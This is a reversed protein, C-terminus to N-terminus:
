LQPAESHKPSHKHLPVLRPLDSSHHLAALPLVCEPDAAQQEARDAPEEGVLHVGEMVLSCDEGDIIMGVADVPTHTVEVPSRRGLQHETNTRGM